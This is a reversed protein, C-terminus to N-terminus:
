ATSRFVKPISGTIAGYPRAQGADGAQLDTGVSEAFRLSIVTGVEQYIRHTYEGHRRHIREYGDLFDTAQRVENLCASTARPLPQAPVLM